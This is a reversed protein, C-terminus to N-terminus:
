NLQRMYTLWVTTSGYYMGYTLLAVNKVMFITQTKWRWKTHMQILVQCKNRNPHTITDHNHHYRRPETNSMFTKQYDVLNKSQPNDLEDNFKSWREKKHHCSADYHRQPIHLHFVSERDTTGLWAFKTQERCVTHSSVFQVQTQIKITNNPNVYAVTKDSILIILRFTEFIIVLYQETQFSYTGINM